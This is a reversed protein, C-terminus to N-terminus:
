VTILANGKNKLKRGWKIILKGENTELLIEIYKDTTQKHNGKM